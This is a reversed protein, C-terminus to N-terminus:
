SVIQGDPVECVVGEGESALSRRVRTYHVGPAGGDLASFRFHGVVLIEKASQELAM